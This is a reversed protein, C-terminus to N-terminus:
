AHTVHRQRALALLDRNVPNRNLFSDRFPEPVRDRATCRLWERGIALLQRAPATEGAALLARAGHLWLEAPLLMTSQRRTSLALASRAYRAAAIPDVDAAIGAGRVMAALVTGEHQLAQAELRVAELQLLAAPAPLTCAYEILLPLRLDPREGQPLRDLADQLVTGTSQGRAVALHHQLLAANVRPALMENDRVVPSDLIRQMRAWQGLHRWCVALRLHAFVEVGRAHQHMLEIALEIQLLADGYHGAQSTCLGLMAYMSGKHAGLDDHLATIQLGRLLHERAADLDGADLRNCTLSGLVVAVNSLNGSVQSYEIARHHHALAADLRGLNDYMHALNGHLESREDDTGHADFWPLCAEFHQAAQALRDTVVLGIALAQHSAAVLRPDDLLVSERLALTAPEVSRFPDVSQNEFNSRQLWAEIRQTPTQALRDLRDCQARGDAVVSGTNVFDEAAELLSAFAAGLDGAAEEIASKCELFEICEKLRSAQRAQSAAQQLWPLARRPQAADMWHQAIRAPEPCRPEIFAAVSAHTRTAITAPVSARVAEFVLDHAFADGRMVHASELEALADAFQMASAQLVHEALEIGFDVGAISAVRALALAAPSLQAIRREILRGVSVPRPLTSPDALRSLSREVWAQKLTELVFLPNGGTRQHLGPALTQGDVGPLALSDVLVALAELGLPALRIPALRAREALADHLAQVPSGAEAPRYALAWRLPETSTADPSGPDAEDILTGLLDLSAEDAFHLDDLALGTLSAQTALLARVSRVIPPRPGESVQLANSAGFEPLVRAVERRLATPLQPAVPTSAAGHAIVARLLRALTAFPVGADGPRGAARVLGPQANAFDQLLRTKGLGAEGILAVVQHAQWHQQLAALEADRGVMRPPRLVSAPVSQTRPAQAQANTAGVTALLDLTEQSPTTGVEDKLVQECRDFALLAGARDGGLYHLRIVRRHTDESLPERALLERAHGLAGAYDQALEADEIRRVLEQRRHADRRERQQGLWADLEAGFGCELDGLVGPSNHLDHAVGEALSLTAGGRVLEAGIQKKLQFLRQRLANRAADSDSEPWLLTALRTRSTPGELALWALLAADRPALAIPAGSPAVAQLVQSLNLQM